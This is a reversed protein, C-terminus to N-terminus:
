VKAPFAGGSAYGPDTPLRITSANPGLLILPVTAQEFVEFAVRGFVIRRAQSRGRTVMAIGDVELDRAAELIADVSGRRGLTVCTTVEGLNLAQQVKTAVAGLYDRAGEAAAGEELARLLVIQVPIGLGVVAWAAQEAAASGDLPVLIRVTKRDAGPPEWAPPVVLVPTRASKVIEETVSGNLWRDLASAKVSALAILEPQWDAEAALIATKADVGGVVSWEVSFGTDLLRRANQELSNFSTEDEVDTARILKLSAGTRAALARVYGLVRQAQMSDDLPVLIRMM